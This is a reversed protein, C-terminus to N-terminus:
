ETQDYDTGDDFKSIEAKKFEKLYRRKKVGSRTNASVVSKM